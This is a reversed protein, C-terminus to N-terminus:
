DRLSPPATVSNVIGDPDSREAKLRAIINRIAMGRITESIVFFVIIWILWVFPEMTRNGQNVFTIFLAYVIVWSASWLSKQKRLNYLAWRERWDQPEVGIDDYITPEAEIGKKKEYNRHQRKEIDSLDPEPIAWRFTKM